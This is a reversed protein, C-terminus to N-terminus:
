PRAYGIPEPLPEGAHVMEADIVRGNAGVAKIYSTAPLIVSEALDILRSTGGEQHREMKPAAELIKAALEAQIRFRDNDAKMRNAERKTNEARWKSIMDAIVKLPNWDGIMQIWGPSAYSIADIQLPEVVSRTLELLRSFDPPPVGTFGMPHHHSSGFVQSHWTFIQSDYQNNERARINHRSEAEIAQGLVFVSNIRNYADETARLFDSFEECSWSGDIAFRIAAREQSFEIRDM